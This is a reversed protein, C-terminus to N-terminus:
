NKYVQKLAAFLDDYVNQRIDYDVFWAYSYGKPRELAM